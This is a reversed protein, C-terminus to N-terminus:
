NNFALVGADTINIHPAINAFVWRQIDSSAFIDMAEGMDKMNAAAFYIMANAPLVSEGCTACNLSDVQVKAGASQMVEQFKPMNLLFNIGSTIEVFAYAVTQGAAGGEPMPKDNAMIANNSSADQNIKGYTSAFWDPNAAALMQDSMMDSFNNYYVQVFTTDGPKDGRLKSFSRINVMKAGGAMAKEKYAATADSLEQADMGEITWVDMVWAKSYTITLVFLSLSVLLTKLFNNM